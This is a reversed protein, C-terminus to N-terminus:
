QNTIDQLQKDLPTSYLPFPNDHHQVSTGQSSTYPQRTAPTFTANTAPPLENNHVSTPETTAPPPEQHLALLDDESQLREHIEPPLSSSTLAAIYVINM